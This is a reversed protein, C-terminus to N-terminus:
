QAAVANQMSMNVIPKDPKQKGHQILWYIMAASAGFGILLSPWEYMIGGDELRLFWGLLTTELLTSNSEILQESWVGHFVTLSNFILHFVIGPYLSNSRVAILGLVLGLLSANFVQLPIMHIVGFALASMTISLGVRQSRNFGSLMFGRFAIEECIAPAVAIALLILWLPQSGDSMATLMRMVSDDLPPFYEKVNSIVWTSVPHLTLPLVIAISMMKFSPMRLRLTKRASSTLMVAMFLAPSAIIVLQQIILLRFMSVRQLAQGMYKLALFQMILIMVFCFGAEMFSPTEEKDRLLHRLWDNLNIQEAERFLVDERKFQEIAWWLALLSYGISTLMVPMLFVLVNVNNPDLLLAKLLLAIGVIPLVSYFWSLNTAPFIEIAPSLCFVTLGMVVTLLPTLYYQGEKTSRAFTAITLCMASFLASLPILLVLLWCLAMPEPLTIAISSLASTSNIGISAMYQGTLGLSVINLLATSISFLMVTFFKGLVIESRSAPCILLTEMTGREKEGAALDVAPYFAGTVAMIVLLAPFLKSWLNASFQDGDSVEIANANVPKPLSEPLDALALRKNLIAVEWARVVERVRSYAISSKDDARSKLIIPRPLEVDNKNSLSRNALQRNVREINQSFDDPFILLVQMPSEKFLARIEEDLLDHQRQLTEVTLRSMRQIADQQSDLDVDDQQQTPQSNSDDVSDDNAGRQDLALTIQEFRELKQKLTNAQEILKTNATFKEDESTFNSPTVIRLKSVNGWEERFSDGDLLQLDDDEPLHEDGLIVVTRPQETFMNAMYMTGIGLLPYLLIPLVAVMFLTRRDRLQDRVERHFILKINKWSM